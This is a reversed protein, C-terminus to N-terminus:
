NDEEEGFEEAIQQCLAILQKARRLEQGELAEGYENLGDIGGRENLDDYCAELDLHTNHFRCYSMNSM